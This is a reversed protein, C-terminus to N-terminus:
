SAITEIVTAFQKSSGYGNQLFREADERSDFEKADNPHAAWGISNDRIAGYMTIGDDHDDDTFVFQLIWASM